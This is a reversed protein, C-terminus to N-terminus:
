SKGKRKGKGSDTGGSPKAKRSLNMQKLKQDLRNQAKKLDEQTQVTKAPLPHLFVEREQKRVAEGCGHIEPLGHKFCFRQKCFECSTGMMSTKQKCRKYDCTEDVKKVAELVIDLNEDVTSSALPELIETANTVLKPDTDLKPADSLEHTTGPNSGAM